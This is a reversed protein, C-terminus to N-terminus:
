TPEKEPDARPRGPTPRAWREMCETVEQVTLPKSIRALVLATRVAIMLDLCPRYDHLCHRCYAIEIALRDEDDLWYRGVLQAPGTLGARTLFRNPRNGRASSRQVREM